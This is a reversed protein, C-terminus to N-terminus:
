KKIRYVNHQLYPVFMYFRIKEKIFLDRGYRAWDWLYDMFQVVQRMRNQTDHIWQGKKIIILIGNTLWYYYYLHHSQSSYSHPMKLSCSSSTCHILLMIQQFRGINERSGKNGLYEFVLHTFRNRTIRAINRVKRSEHSTLLIIEIYATENSHIWAILKFYHLRM